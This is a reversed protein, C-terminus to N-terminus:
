EKRESGFVQEQTGIDREYKKLTKQEEHMDPYDVFPTDSQNYLQIFNDESDDYIESIQEKLSEVEMTDFQSYHQLTEKGIRRLKVSVVQAMGNQIRFMPRSSVTHIALSGVIKGNSSELLQIIEETNSPEYELSNPNIIYKPSWCERCYYNRSVQEEEFNHRESVWPGSVIAHVHEGNGLYNGCQDCEVRKDTIM